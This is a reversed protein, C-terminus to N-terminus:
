APLKRETYSRKFDVKGCLRCSVDCGTLIPSRQSMRSGCRLLFLRLHGFAKGFFKERWWSSASASHSTDAQQLIGSNQAPITVNNHAINAPESATQLSSYYGPLNCFSALYSFYTQKELTWHERRSALLEHAGILGCDGHSIKRRYGKQIRGNM